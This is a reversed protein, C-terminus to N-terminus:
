MNYGQPAAYPEFRTCDRNFTLKAIDTPGNRQKAVILETMGTPAYNDDGQHYYDENHLLCVVDADQEISGSERLDSIRPRHTERDTPGRNLQAACIVPIELERALAKIGRSIETIQEQRSDARGSYTMLQLYDLFICEIKHAEKLRRAKARLQLITLTPSDDIFIPSNELDSAAMTLHQFNEPSIMGRRMQRLNFRAYSALFRDALQEKSMELSFIVVPHKDRVAMFEALNLLCSTKGMSPRAALIIMESKQFGSTIEDLKNWGSALGTIAQGNSNVLTEFTHQLLTKLTISEQGVQQAAIKFVLSEARDVINAAEEHAEYAERIMASGAVILERLMARDRVITAYYEANAANPVGEALAVLYEVGGVAVLQKQMELENRALVLDIPKANQRMDVLVQYILQHAPRYFHEAKTIQCVIDICGADLLMSGLVCVEAEISHPPVRQLSERQDASSASTRDPANAVAGGADAPGPSTQYTGAPTQYTGSSENLTTM